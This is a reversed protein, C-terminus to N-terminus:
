DMSYFARSGGGNENSEQIGNIRDGHDHLDQIIVELRTLLSAAENLAQDRRLFGTGAGRSVKFPGKTAIKFRIHCSALSSPSIIVLNNLLNTDDIELRHSDFEGMMMM